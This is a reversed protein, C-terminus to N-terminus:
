CIYAIQSLRWIASTYVETANQMLIDVIRDWFEITFEHNSSLSM